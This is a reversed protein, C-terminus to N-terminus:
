TPPKETSKIENVARTLAQQLRRDTVVIGAQACVERLAALPQAGNFVTPHKAILHAAVDLAHKTGRPPIAKAIGIGAVAAYHMRRVAERDAEFDAGPSALLYEGALEDRDIRARLEALLDALRQADRIAKARGTSAGRERDMKSHERVLREIVERTVPRSM